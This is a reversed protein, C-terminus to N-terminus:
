TRIPRDATEAPRAMPSLKAIMSPAVPMATRERGMNPSYATTPASSHAGGIMRRAWYPHEDRQSQDNAHAPPAQTTCVLTTGTPVRREVSGPRGQTISLQAPSLYGIFLESGPPMARPYFTFAVDSGAGPGARMVTGVGRGQGSPDLYGDDDPGKCLEGVKILVPFGIGGLAAQLGSPDRFYARKNWRLTIAGNGQTDLTYAVTRVHLSSAGSAIGQRAAPRAALAIGTAAIAAVATIANARVLRRRRRHAQGSAVIDALATPMTVEDFADRVLAVDTHAAVPHQDHGPERDDQRHAAAGAHTVVGRATRQEGRRNCQRHQGRGQLASRGAAPRTTPACKRGSARMKSWGCYRQVPTSSTPTATAPRSTVVAPYAAVAFAITPKPAATTSHAVASCTAM